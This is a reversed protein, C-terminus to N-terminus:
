IFRITLSCYIPMFYQLFEIFIDKEIPLEEEQLHIIIRVGDLAGEIEGFIYYTKQGGWLTGVDDQSSHWLRLTSPTDIIDIEVEALEKALFRLVSMTGKRKYIEAINSLFRRQFNVPLNHRYKYGFLESYYPLYKEDMKEIDILDLISTIENFLYDVGEQQLADLYNKLLQNDQYIQPLNEYLTKKPM